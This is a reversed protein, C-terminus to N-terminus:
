RQTKSSVCIITHLLLFSTQPKSKISHGTVNCFLPYHDSIDCRIVGANLTHSTDNTAIHDIITSSKETVRIPLTIIPLSGCSVLYNMLTETSKTKHKTSIDINFDGVIYILTKHKNIKSISNNLADSFEETNSTPDRYIAGIIIDHTSHKEFILKEM